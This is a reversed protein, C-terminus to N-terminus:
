LDFCHALCILKPNFPMLHVGITIQGEQFFHFLVMLTVLWWLVSPAHMQKLADSTCHPSDM